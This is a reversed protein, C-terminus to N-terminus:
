SIALALGCSPNHGFPHMNGGTRNEGRSENSGEKRAGTLDFCCEAKLV